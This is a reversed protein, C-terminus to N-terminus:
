KVILVPVSSLHVINTTISGKLLGAISGFGHSGIIILTCNNDKAFNVITQAADGVLVHVSYDLNASDLQNRSPALAREGAERHFDNITDTNIFRSIDAPLAAQVNILLIEPKAERQTAENIVYQIAHLSPASEDIPILWKANM